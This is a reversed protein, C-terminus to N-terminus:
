ILVNSISLILKAAISVVADEGKRKNEEKRIQTVKIGERRKDLDAVDYHSNIERKLDFM